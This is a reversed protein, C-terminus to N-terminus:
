QGPNKWLIRSNHQGATVVEEDLVTAKMRPLTLWDSKTRSTKSLIGKEELSSLM